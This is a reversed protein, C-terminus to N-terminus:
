RGAGGEGPGMEPSHALAPGAQKRPGRFGARGEGKSRVRGGKCVFQLFQEQLLHFEALLQLSFKLTEFTGRDRGVGGWRWLRAGM